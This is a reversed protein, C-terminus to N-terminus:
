SRVVFSGRWVATHPGATVTFAYRGAKAPNGLGAAASLDIRLTGLEMVACTVKHSPAPLFVEITRGSTAVSSPARPGVRVAAASISSPVRMAAPLAISLTRANPRGCQLAVDHLDITLAVDRAGASAKSLSATAGGGAASAGAAALLAVAGALALKRLM